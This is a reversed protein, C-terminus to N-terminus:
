TVLSCGYNPRVFLVKWERLLNCCYANKYMESSSVAQRSSRFHGSNITQKNSNQLRQILRSFVKTRVLVYITFHNPTPPLAPRLAMHCKHRFVSLFCSRLLIDDATTRFPKHILQLLGGTYSLSILLTSRYSPQGVWPESRDQCLGSIRKTFHLSSRM